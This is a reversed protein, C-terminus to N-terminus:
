TTSNRYSSVLHSKLASILWRQCAVKGGQALHLSDAGTLVVVGRVDLALDDIEPIPIRKTETSGRWTRKWTLETATMEIEEDTEADRIGQWYRQRLWVIGSVLVVLWPLALLGLQPEASSTFAALLVVYGIPGFIILAGAIQLYLMLQLGFTRGTPARWINLQNGVSDVSVGEPPPAVIALEEAKWSLRQQLGGRLEECPTLTSKVTDRLPLDLFVAFQRALRRCEHESSLIPSRLEAGQGRLTVAYYFFLHGRKSRKEVTELVVETVSSWDLSRKWVPFLAGIWKYARRSGRKAMLSTKGFSLTMGMAFFGGGLLFVGFPGAPEDMIKLGGRGYSYVILLSFLLPLSGILPRWWAIETTM